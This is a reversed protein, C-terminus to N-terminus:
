YIYVKTGVPINQYLWEIDEDRLRVCGHTAATGISSKIPTGHLLFGEGLDIRFKGLAGEIKRNTTTLPPIYLTGNFVLHEDPPLPAWPKGSEVLGVMKERVVLQRGDPLRTTPVRLPAVRLGHQQATEYYFWDPPVWVPDM